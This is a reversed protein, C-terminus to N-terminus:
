TLGPIQVLPWVGPYYRSHAVVAGKWMRELEDNM